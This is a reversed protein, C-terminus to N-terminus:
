PYAHAPNSKKKVPKHLRGDLVAKNLTNKKIGLTKAVESVEEGQNFLAQAQTLVEATLIKAGRRNRPKYFGSAGQTRYKKVARKVTIAPIGFARCLEAQTANGNVYFQSIIMLFTPRDDEDHSFVPLLGSFYTVRSDRKEFALNINIETTGSPFFPLQTQPM